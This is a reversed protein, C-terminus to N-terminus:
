DNKKIKKEYEYIKHIKLIPSDNDKIGAKELFGEYDGKFDKKHNELISDMVETGQISNLIENLKAPDITKIKKLAEETQKMVDKLSKEFDM